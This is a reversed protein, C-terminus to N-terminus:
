QVDPGGEADVWPFLGRRRLEELAERGVDKAEELARVHAEDPNLGASQYAAARRAYDAEVARTFRSQIVGAIV